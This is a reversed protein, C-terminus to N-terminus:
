TKPSQNVHWNFSLRSKDMLLCHENYSLQSEPTESTAPSGCMSDLITECRDYDRGIQSEGANDSFRSVVTLSRAEFIYTIKPDIPVRSCCCGARLVVAM